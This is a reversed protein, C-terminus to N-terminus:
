NERGKESEREIDGEIQRGKRERAKRIEKHRRTETPIERIIIM